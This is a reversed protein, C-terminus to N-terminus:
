RSGDPRPDRPTAETTPVSEDLGALWGAFAVLGVFHWSFDILGGVALAALAALALKGRPRDEDRRAHAVSLVVVALLAVGVLGLGAFIQLPENHAYRAIADGRFNHIRLDREPGSGLALHEGGQRAAASWEAVRDDLSASGSRPGANGVVGSTLLGVYVIGVIVAGTALSQFADRIPTRAYFQRRGLVALGVALALLGGRSATALLAVVLVSGCLVREAWSREDRALNAISALAFFLAAANPYAFPGSLRWVGDFPLGWPATNSAWLVLSVLAVGVGIFVLLRTVMLREIASRCRRATIYAAGFAVAAASLSAARATTDTAIGRALWAAAFLALAKLMRQDARSIRVRDVCALIVLFLPIAVLDPSYFGGSRVVGTATVGLALAVSVGHVSRTLGRITTTDTAGM